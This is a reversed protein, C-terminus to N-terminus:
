RLLTLPPNSCISTLSLLWLPSGLLPTQNPADAYIGQSRVVKANRHDAVEVRLWIADQDDDIRIRRVKQAFGSSAGKRWLPKRSRSWYHAEGSDVTPVVAEANMVGIIPVDGMKADISPVPILGRRDFKPALL